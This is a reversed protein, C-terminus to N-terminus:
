DGVMDRFMSRLLHNASSIQMKRLLTTSGLGLCPILICLVFLIWDDYNGSCYAISIWLALTMSGFVYLPVGAAIVLATRFRNSPKDKM